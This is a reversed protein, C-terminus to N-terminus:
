KVTEQDERLAQLWRVVGGDLADHPRHPHHRADGLGAAYRLLHGGEADEEKVLILINHELDIGVHGHIGAGASLVPPVGWVFHV